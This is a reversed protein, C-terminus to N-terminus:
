ARIVPIDWLMIEGSDWGGGGSALTKSDPSFAVSHVESGQELTAILNRSAVDWLKIEGNRSGSALMKGDPSFAVSFIDDEWGGSHADITAIKQRTAVDWLRIRGTPGNDGSGSALIKGDPSFALSIVSWTTDGDELTGIMKGNAVDWLKISYYEGWALVQGGRPDFALSTVYMSGADLSGVYKKTPVDWLNIKFISTGAALVKGDPSFAVSHYVGAEETFTVITKHSLVDWLKVKEDWSASAIIKGDPSFAVARVAQANGKFPPGIPQSSKVDWLQLHPSNGNGSGLINGDPPKFAVSLFPGNGRLIAHPQDSVNAVNRRIRKSM